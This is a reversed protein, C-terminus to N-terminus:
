AFRAWRLEMGNGVPCFRVGAVDKAYPGFWKTNYIFVGPSDSLVVKAAEGYANLRTTQDTERMGTALLRDVEPNKYFAASKFTGWAASSYMEGIWNHPDPYYTSIITSFFDPSTEPSRFLPQLSAWPMVKLETKIGLERLGNQLVEAQQQLTIQGSSFAITYTRDAVTKALKLEARAKDLDFTYGKIGTPYGPCNTPIPVPNRVVSGGLIGDIMGEYDFAYAVARRFHVDTFPPKTNNMQIAALRMSEAELVQLNPARQLRQIQELPLYGDTATYDGRTLGLVITSTDLVPRFDITDLNPGTWGLFHGDFRAVKFGSAPDFATLRYSGSGADNSSLWTSGWDGNQEKSRLLAANVIFLEPIASLFIAAPKKLTFVVTYRDAARTTGKEVMQGILPAAGKGMGLLRDVSYVVDDAALESGDHFKVGQRLNFTYTLGDASITHREALWPQLKPPNDEWRYLSDYLNLRVAVRAVDFSQHPDLTDYEGSNAFIFPKDETAWGTLPRAVTGAAAAALLGRRSLGGAGMATM